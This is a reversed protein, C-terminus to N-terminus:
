TAKTPSRLPSQRTSSTSLANSSSFQSCSLESTSSHNVPSYRLVNDIHTQRSTQYSTDFARACVKPEDPHPTRAEAPVHGSCLLSATLAKPGKRGGENPGSAPVLTLKDNRAQSTVPGMRWTLPPPGKNSQFGMVGLALVIIWHLDQNRSAPLIPALYFTCHQPRRLLSAPLVPDMVRLCVSTANRTATTATRMHGPRSPLTPTENRAHPWFTTSLESSAQRIFVM